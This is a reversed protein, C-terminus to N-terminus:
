TMKSLLRILVSVNTEEMLIFCLSFHMLFYWTCWHLREQLVQVSSYGSDHVTCLPISEAHM